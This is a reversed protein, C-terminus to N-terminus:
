QAIVRKKVKRLRYGLKNLLTSITRRKPLEEDQYNKQEVLQPRV